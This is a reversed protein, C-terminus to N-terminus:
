PSQLQQPHVRKHALQMLRDNQLGIFFYKTSMSANYYHVTKLKSEKWM